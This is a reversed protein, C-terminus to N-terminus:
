QVTGDIVDQVEKIQANALTNLQEAYDDINLEGTICSEIVKAINANEEGGASIGTLANWRANAYGPTFKYPEIIANGEMNKYVEYVGEMPYNEFFRESIEKDTNLPLSAWKCEPDDEIINLREMIGDKGFSMFRAFDYAEQPYQTTAAIFIYDPIIICKGNPLSTFVIESALESYGAANSTPDFTMAIKGANFAEWDNETGLEAKQEDTLSNFSYGNEYISRSYKIGEIYLPDALNVKGDKVTFFGMSSDKVAPYWDSIDAAKLAVVGESPASMNKVAEDFEEFTYGYSLLEQNRQEFLDKNMYLGTLNMAYPVGYVGQGFKGSETLVSPISEWDTDEQIYPTVDLAWGNAVATPLEGIMSVDPLNGGAAATTLSGNWDSNDIDSAIEIKINPHMQEYLEIMRRNINNEEETGLDWAAYRLVITEDSNSANQADTDEGTEQGKCGSFVATVALSVMLIGATKRFRMM